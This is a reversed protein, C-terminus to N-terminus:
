TLKFPVHPAEETANDGTSKTSKGSDSMSLTTPTTFCPMPTEEVKTHFSASAVLKTGVTSPVGDQSIPWTKPPVAHAAEANEVQATVEALTLLPL